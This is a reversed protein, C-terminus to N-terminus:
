QLNKAYKRCLPKRHLDQGLDTRRSPFTIEDVNRIRKITSDRQRREQIIFINKTWSVFYPEGLIFAGILNKHL